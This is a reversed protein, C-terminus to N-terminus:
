KMVMMKKVSVFEYPVGYTSKATIRYIYAGSALRGADFKEQYYGAKREENLIKSVERGLIDYITITVQSDYPLQYSITTTLNFPNPYNQYLEYKDPAKAKVIIEKSWTENTGATIVFKIVGDNEVPASKDVDFDFTFEKEEGASIAGIAIEATKMKIWSPCSDVSVNVGKASVLSSNAVTLEIRNNESGFPLTYITQSFGEGIFFLIVAISIIVKKM